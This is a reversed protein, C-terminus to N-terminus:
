HAREHTAPDRRPAPASSRPSNVFLGCLILFTGVFFRWRLEEGIFYSWLVTLPIGMHTILSGKVAPVHRFGFTMLLQGVFTALSIAVLLLIATPTM